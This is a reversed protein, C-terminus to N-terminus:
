RPGIDFVGSKMNIIHMWKEGSYAAAIEKTRQDGSVQVTQPSESRIRSQPVGLFVSNCLIDVFQWKNCQVLTM